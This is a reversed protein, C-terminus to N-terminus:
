KENKKVIKGERKLQEYREMAKTEVLRELTNM